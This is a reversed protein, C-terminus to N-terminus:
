KKKSRALEIKEEAIRIREKAQAENNELKMKELDLQEEIQNEKIDMNMMSEDARRQMDMARLDLERQKLMVLPDQKQGMAESQALEITLQSVRNAIMANIEIQAGEPDAQLRAQMRPDNAIAAGVEGQAKLSVHESIHAQLATYVQPNIQVMRTSMFARHANIHADHDQEPFAKLPKMALVEMNETAPDKPMPRELPKLIQDIDQTGLAEYVRRYAERLNHMMPNSMAIKLNENALTVRQAM